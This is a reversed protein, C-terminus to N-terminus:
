GANETRTDARAREGAPKRAADQTFAGSELRHV